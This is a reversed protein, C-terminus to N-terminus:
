WLQPDSRIEIQDETDARGPSLLIGLLVITSLLSRCRSLM